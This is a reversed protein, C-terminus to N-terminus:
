AHLCLLSRQDWVLAGLVPYQISTSLHFTIIITTGLTTAPIVTTGLKYVLIDARFIAPTSLPPPAGERFFCSTPDASM